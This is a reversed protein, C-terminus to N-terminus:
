NVVPQYKGSTDRPNVREFEETLFSSELLRFNVKSDEVILVKIKEHMLMRSKTGNSPPSITMSGDFDGEEGSPKKASTKTEPTMPLSVPCVKPEKWLPLNKKKKFFCGFCCFWKECFTPTADASPNLTIHSEAALFSPHSKGDSSNSDLHPKTEEPSETNVKSTASGDLRRLQVASPSLLRSPDSIHGDTQKKDSTNGDEPSNSSPIPTVRSM